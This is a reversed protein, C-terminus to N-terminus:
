TSLNDVQDAKHWPPVDNEPNERTQVLLRPKPEALYTMWIRCYM